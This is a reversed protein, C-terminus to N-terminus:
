EKMKGRLDIGKIYLQFTDNERSICIYDTRRMLIEALTKEGGFTGACPFSDYGLLKHRACCKLLRLYDSPVHSARDASGSIVFQM